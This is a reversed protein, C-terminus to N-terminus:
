CHSTSVASCVCRKLRDINASLACLVFFFVIRCGARWLHPHLGYLVRWVVVGPPLMAAAEDSLFGLFLHGPGGPCAGCGAADEHQWGLFVAVSRPVSSVPLEHEAGRMSVVAALCATLWCFAAHSSGTSHMGRVNCHQCSIHHPAEACRKRLWMCCMALSADSCWCTRLLM